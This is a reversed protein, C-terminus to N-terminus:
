YAIETVRLVVSIAIFVTEVQEGRIDMSTHFRGLTAELARLYMESPISQVKQLVRDNLDWPKTNYALEEVM